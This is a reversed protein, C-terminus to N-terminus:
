NMSYNETFRQAKEKYSPYNNYYEDKIFKSCPFRTDPRLLLIKVNQINEEETKNKNWIFPCLVIGNKQTVNYHYIKTIFKLIKRSNDNKICNLSIEFKGKEYPSNEPGDIIIKKLEILDKEDIIQNVQTLNLENGEKLKKKGKKGKKKKVTKTHRIINNNQFLNKKIILHNEGKIVGTRTRTFIDSNNFEERKIDEFSENNKSYTKNLRSEKDLDSDFEFSSIHPNNEDEYNKGSKEQNKTASFFNLFFSM